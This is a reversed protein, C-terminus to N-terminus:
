RVMYSTHLLEHAREGGPEGLFETYLEKIAPNEHSKRIGSNEDNKYLAAARLAPVDNLARVAAPQHPQGGGNVCGGPCAMVEIFQYDAEGAKVRTLLANANALGSVAAVRITTGDVEVSAEKIGNMGRVAIFELNELPKGSLKEVATRLAAEMVGGTAGFIVGAGSGQGLPDDFKANPDMAEMQIEKEKLLKALENTTISIDVDPVGAGCEDERTIEFKKATCPMVSVMVINEKKVGENAAIYSKVIAGQMQHPSKCTSINELMDPYFHEAYKVWGPCCSTVMPLVGEHRIRHILEQAEEMITLDAGFKTDFVKDFGARHLAEAIRGEVDVGIPFEFAEGLAARVAPAVQVVVYKEPDELAKKVVDTHDIETLAGVPCVAVCQGCNVCSSAALGKPSSPTVLTDLGEGCATIASVAQMKACVNICRKCKICKNNDRVLVKSSLELQELEARPLEPENTFGYEHLLSQLECSESRLCYLCSKNHKELIRALAAKRAEIVAPTNTWIEMGEKVRTMSANVVKGDVEAICVGSEDIDMVGKLYYLTPIPHQLYEKALKRTELSADLITIGKKMTYEYKNIKFTVNGM